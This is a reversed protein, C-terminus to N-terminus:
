NINIRLIKKINILKMLIKLRNDMIESHRKLNNIKLIVNNGRFHKFWKKDHEDIEININNIEKNIKDIILHLNKLCIDVSDHLKINRDYKSIIDNIIEIKLRIDLNELLEKFHFKDNVLLDGISIYASKTAEGITHNLVQNGLLSSIVLTEFM